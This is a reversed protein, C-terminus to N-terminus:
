WSAMIPLGKIHRKRIATLLPDGLTGGFYEEVPRLTEEYARQTGEALMPMEEARFQEVLESFPVSGPRDDAERKATKKSHTM